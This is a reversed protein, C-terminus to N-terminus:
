PDRLDSSPITLATIRWGRNKLVCKFCFCPMDRRENYTSVLPWQNAKVSLIYSMLCARDWRKNDDKEKVHFTATTNVASDHELTAKRAPNQMADAAHEYHRNHGLEHAWLSSTGSFNWFVGIPFGCSPSPVGSVTVGGHPVDMSDRPMLPGQVKSIRRVKRLRCNPCDVTTWSGQITDNQNRYQAGCGPCEYMSDYKHGEQLVGHMCGLTLCADGSHLDANSDQVFAHSKQCTTCEYTASYITPSTQYEIMIHGRMRGTLKEIQKVFQLSQRFALNVHTNCLASRLEGADPFSETFGYAAHNWWPWTYGTSFNIWGQNGVQKRLDGPPLSDVVMDKYSTLPFIQAVDVPIQDNGVDLENSIHVNCATYHARWQNPGKFAFHDRQYVSGPTWTDTQGWKVYGRISTKRWLRFEATHAQPLKEYRKELVEANPFKYDSKDDFRVEARIQYGDGAIRSPHFYVGALGLRKKFVQEKDQGLDDHVVCYVSERAGCADAKWPALSDETGLGFPECYYLAADTPRIGGQDFPTNYYRSTKDVDKRVHVAKKQDLTWRVAIRTRTAEPRGYTGHVSPPHYLLGLLTDVEKDLKPLPQNVPAANETVGVVTDVKEIEDMTWDVRLPGIANRVAEIEKEETPAAVESDLSDKKSLLRFQAQLPIWPRAVDRVDKDVRADRDEYSGRGAGTDGGLAADDGHVTDRVHQTVVTVATWYAKDWYIGNTYWNRDDVWVIMRKAPDRLVALFDSAKSDPWDTPHWELDVVTSADAPKGFWPRHRIPDLAALAADAQTTDAGVTMRAFNGATGGAVPVSKQFESLACKFHDNVSANTVPGPHFGALALKYKTWLLGETDSPPKDKHYVDALGLDISTKNTAAEYDKKKRAHTDKHVYLRVETHMAALALGEAEDIDRHAELSVRYPMGDRKFEVKGNLDFKNEGLDAENLGKAYIVEGAGNWIQLLGIKVRDANKLEWAVKCSEAVPKHDEGFEVWFPALDIRAKADKGSKSHRMVVTYPSFAVNLPRDKPSKLAGEACNATGFWNDVATKEKDRKAQYVPVGDLASFKPLGENWDSCKSYNSGYVDQHVEDACDDDGQAKYGVDCTEQVPIFWKDLSKIGIVSARKRRKVKVKYKQDLDLAESKWLKPILIPEPSSPGYDPDMELSEPAVDLRVANSNACGVRECLARTIEAEDTTWWNFRALEKWDLDAPAGDVDQFALAISSLSDKKKVVYKKANERKDYIHGM